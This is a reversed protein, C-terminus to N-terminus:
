INLIAFQVLCRVVFDYRESPTDQIIDKAVQEPPAFVGIHEKGHAYDTSHVCYQFWALLRHQIGFLDEIRGADGLRRSCRAIRRSLGDVCM